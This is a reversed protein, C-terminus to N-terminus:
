QYAREPVGVISIRGDSGVVQLQYTAAVADAFKLSDGYKFIGSIRLDAARADEVSLHQASYRNMESIADALRTDEFVIKGRRWATIKEISPQDLKPPVNQAFTLRQGPALIVERNASAKRKDQPLSDHVYKKASESVSVKGDMLTVSVQDPDRRVVFSTGLANIERDGAVVIFPWGAHKAVDFLAEGKNLEIRRQHEDFRVIVRTATNLTVQTGDKLSVTRQEGVDTVVGADRLTWLSIVGIVITAALGTLLGVNRRRAKMRLRAKELERVVAATPMRRLDEWVDTAVEWVKQRAPVDKLWLKHGRDSDPTRKTNHLHAVWAAAEAVHAASPTGRKPGENTM